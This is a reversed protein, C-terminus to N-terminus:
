ANVEWHGGRDSGIRSLLGAAKLNALHKEVAKPSIGIRGAMTAASLSGDKSLMNLIIERSKPNIAVIDLRYDVATTAFKAVVPFNSLEEKM